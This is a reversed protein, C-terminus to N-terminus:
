SDDPYGGAPVLLTWNQGHDTSIAFNVGDYGLETDYYHMFSLNSESSLTYLPSYLQYTVNSPYQGSLNTGWVKDGSPPTVQVPTGWTWGTESDFGGDDLEFDNEINPLNYPLNIQVNISEGNDPSASFNMPLYAEVPSADSFDLNFVAQMIQNADISSITFTPNSIVLNPMESTLNVEVNRAEVASANQLNIILQIQEGAEVVGNFNGEYDNTMFSHYQLQNAEVHVSFIRNWTVEGSTIALDFSIIRNAPCDAAVSFEFPSRNVGSSGPDLDFYDSEANIMTIYPDDTSLVSTITTAEVNGSNQLKVGIKVTEGPEVVNNSDNIYTQEILLNAAEYYTPVNTIYLAKGDSLQVAASPYTNNFSYELGRIGSHDEIGITCYNGHNNGSQSNVNNFTHYQFKIPGDGLSTNYTAQDYLIAQFTEISSGNKGNKLNYWEVIFSHNNRDFYTYIGGGSHTALDDWFPAIMP